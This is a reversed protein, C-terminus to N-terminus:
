IGLHEKAMDILDSKKGSSKKGIAKLYEKLTAVTLKSM